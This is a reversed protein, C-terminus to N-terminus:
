KKVAGIINMLGPLVDKVITRGGYFFTVMTFFITWMKADNVAPLPLTGMLVLAAWIIGVPRIMHNVTDVLHDILDLMWLLFFPILGLGPAYQIVPMDPANYARASSVDKIDEEEQAIAAAAKEKATEPLVKDILQSALQQGGSSGGGGFLGKFLGVAGSALISFFNM